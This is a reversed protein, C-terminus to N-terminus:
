SDVSSTSDPESAPVPTTGGTVSAATTKAPAETDKAGLPAAPRGSDGSAAESPLPEAKTTAKKESTKATSRDFRKDTTKKTTATKKAGARTRSKAPTKPLHLLNEVDKVEPIARVTAEIKKMQTNNKVEGRLSVVGDVANVDIKGKPANDPRFIETEVKRALTVDDMGEKPQPNRNAFRKGLDVGQRAVDRGTRTAQDAVSRVTKFTRDLISNLAM